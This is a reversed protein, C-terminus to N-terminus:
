CNEEAEIGIEVNILTNSGAIILIQDLTVGTIIRTEESNVKMGKTTTPTGGMAYRIDGEANLEIYNIQGALDLASSNATDLLDKLTTATTTATIQIANDSTIQRIM